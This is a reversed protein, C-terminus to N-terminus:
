RAFVVADYKLDDFILLFAASFFCARGRASAPREVREPKRLSVLAGFTLACAVDRLLYIYLCYIYMYVLGACSHRPQSTACALSPERVSVYIYLHVYPQARRPSLSFSLFFPQALSPLAYMCAHALLASGPPPKLAAKQVRPHICRRPACDFPM